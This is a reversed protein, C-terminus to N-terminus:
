NKKEGITVKIKSDYHKQTHILFRIFSYYKKDCLPCVFQYNCYKKNHERERKRANNEKM